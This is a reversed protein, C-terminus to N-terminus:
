KFYLIYLIRKLDAAIKRKLRTFEDADVEKNKGNSPGKVDCESQIRELRRLLGNM